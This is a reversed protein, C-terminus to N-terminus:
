SSFCGGTNNIAPVDPLVVELLGKVDELGGGLGEAGLTDDNGGGAGEQVSGVGESALLLKGSIDVLPEGEGSLLNLLNGDEGLGHRVGLGDASLQIGVSGGHLRTGLRGAGVVGLDLLALSLDRLLHVVALRREVVAISLLLLVEAKGEERGGGNAGEGLGALDTDLPVLEGLALDTLLLIIFEDLLLNVKGDLDLILKAKIDVNVALGFAVVHNLVETLAQLAVDKGGVSPDLGVAGAADTRRDNDAVDGARSGHGDLLALIGSGDGLLGHLAHKSSGNSAQPPRERTNVDVLGDLALLEGQGETILDDIKLLVADKDDLDVLRSKTLTKRKPLATLTVGVELPSDVAELQGSSANVIRSLNVGVEAVRLELVEEVGNGRQISIDEGNLVGLRVGLEELDEDILGVGAVDARTDVVDVARTNGGLSLELLADLLHELVTLKLHRRLWLRIIVLLIWDTGLLEPDVGVATELGALPILDLTGEGLHDVSGLVETLLVGLSLRWFM